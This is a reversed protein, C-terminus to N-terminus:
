QALVRLTGIGPCTAFRSALEQTVPSALDEQEAKLLRCLLREDEDSLVKLDFLFYLLHFDLLNIVNIGSELELQAALQTASPTKLSPRNEIAFNNLLGGNTADKFGHSVSVLAYDVPFAPKANEQVTIKYENSHKYFIDPVYREHTAERVKLVSPNTSPAVIDARVMAETQVSVQYCSIAIEGLENGSVVCTVLKSSFVGSDSYKTRSPYALQFRAALVVELSSLFYSKSHRKCLVSGDKKGSDVLDTFLIGVVHMNLANAAKIAAVNMEENFSIGDFEDSQPPEYIAHVVAKIGLPVQDHQVYNGILIGFRQTNTQRWYEIFREMITSNDFELHDVMRFRQQQLSIAAPQCKSCIGAPWPLHGGSCNKNVTYDPETLVNKISSESKLKRIYSHFSLHKINNELRYEEDYPELPQCYECMGKLGHNCLRSRQRPIKGDQGDLLTDVADVAVDNQRPSSISHESDNSTEIGYSLFFLDGHRVGLQSLSSLWQESEGEGPANPALAIKLDSHAPLQFKLKEVASKFTDSDDVDVRYMGTKGRFRIIMILSLSDLAGQPKLLSPIAHFM